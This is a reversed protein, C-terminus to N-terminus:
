TRIGGANVRHGSQFEDEFGCTIIEVIETKGKFKRIEGFGSGKPVFFVARRDPAFIESVHKFFLMSLFCDNYRKADMCGHLRKCGRLIGSYFDTKEIPM